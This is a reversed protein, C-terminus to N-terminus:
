DRRTPRRICLVIRTRVRPQEPQSSLCLGNNRYGLVHLCIELICVPIYLSFHITFIIGLFLCLVTWAKTLVPLNQSSFAEKLDRFDLHNSIIFLGVSNLISSIQNAVIFIQGELRAHLALAGNFIACNKCKLRPSLFEFYICSRLVFCLIYVGSLRNTRFVLLPGSILRLVIIALQRFIMIFKLPEQSTSDFALYRHVELM